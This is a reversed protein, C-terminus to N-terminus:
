AGQIKSQIWEEVSSRVWAISKSSLHIPEPFNGNKRHKHIFTRSVGTMAMVEKIRILDSPQNDRKSKSKYSFIPHPISARTKDSTDKNKLQVKFGLIHKQLLQLEKITSDARHSLQELYNSIYEYELKNM